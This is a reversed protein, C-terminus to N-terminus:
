DEGARRREVWYWSVLAPVGLLLQRVRRALSLALAVQPSLGLAAGFLLFSGEQTGLGAPVLFLASQVANTMSELVIAGRVTAPAGVIRLMVWPELSQLFFGALQWAGCAALARRDSFLRELADHFKAAGADTSERTAGGLREVVRLALGFVRRGWRRVVFVFAPLAVVSVVLAIFVLRVPGGGMAGARSQAVLLALGAAAFVAQAAITLSLEVIVSASAREVPVQRRVLLRVGVVEGGIRAVPLLGAVAERVIAGWTLYVSGPRDAGALLSGWAMGYCALPVVHVPVLWLLRWGAVGLLQLVQPLGSRVLLTVALGLGIAGVM